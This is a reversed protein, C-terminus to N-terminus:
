TERIKKKGHDRQLLMTIGMELHLFWSPSFSSVQELSELAMHKGTYLKWARPLYWIFVHPHFPALDSEEILCMHRNNSFVFNFSV